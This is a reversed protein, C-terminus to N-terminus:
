RARGQPRRLHGTAEIQVTALRVDQLNAVLGTPPTPEPTATSNPTPAATPAPADYAAADTRHACGHVCGRPGVGGRPCAGSEPDAGRGYSRRGIPRRPPPCRRGRDRRGSRASAPGAPAPVRQTGPNRVQRRHPWGAVRPRAAIPCNPRFRPRFRRALSGSVDFGSSRSAPGAEPPHRGGRESSPEVILYDPRPSLALAPVVDVGGNTGTVFKGAADAPRRLDRLSTM